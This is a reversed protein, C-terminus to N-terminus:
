MKAEYNELDFIDSRIPEISVVLFKKISPNNMMTIEMRNRICDELSPKDDDHIVMVEPCHKRIYHSMWTKGVSDGYLNVILKTSNELATLFDKQWDLLEITSVNM